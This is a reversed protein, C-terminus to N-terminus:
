SANEDGFLVFFTKFIIKIDVFINREEIYKLDLEVWKKFDISNRGGIQWYCTLGPKVTLRQMEYDGYNDVECVLPPRPGVLTMDGKLINFFQPIEDLSTKRIFKGVNTIRPDEKIKFVPGDMENLESIDKLLEEANSVMSRFKYMKFTKNNIGVREQCFLIKGKPDEIKIAISILVSIPLFLILGVISGLIDIVRKFFLYGKKDNVYIYKNRKKEIVDAM